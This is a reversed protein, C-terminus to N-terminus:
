GVKKYTFVAAGPKTLFKVQLGEQMLRSGSITNPTAADLDTVQYMAAPDLGRLRLNRAPEVQNNNEDRFFAQVVGDGQDTRIVLFFIGTQEPPEAFVRSSDSIERACAFGDCVHRCLDSAIKALLIRETICRLVHLTGISKSFNFHLDTRWATAPQVYSGPLAVRRRRLLLGCRLQSRLRSSDVGEALSPLRTLV